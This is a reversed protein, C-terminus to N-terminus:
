VFSHTIVHVGDLVLIRGHLAAKVCVQDSYIISGNVIDRRQKVDSETMDRTITLWEVGREELYAFLSVQWM